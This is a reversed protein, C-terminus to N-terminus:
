GEETVCIQADTCIQIIEHSCYLTFEYFNYKLYIFTVYVDGPGLTIYIM